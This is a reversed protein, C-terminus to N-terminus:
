DHIDQNIDKIGSECKNNEDSMLYDDKITKKRQLEDEKLLLGKDIEEDDDDNKDSDPPYNEVNDNSIKNESFSAFFRHYDEKEKNSMFRILFDFDEKELQKENKKALNLLNRIFNMYKNNRLAAKPSNVM